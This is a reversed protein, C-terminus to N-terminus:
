TEAMLDVSPEVVAAGRSNDRSRIMEFCTPRGAFQQERLKRSEERMKSLASAVSPPLDCPPLANRNQVFDTRCRVRDGVQLEMNLFLLGGLREYSFVDDPDDPDHDPKLFEREVFQALGPMGVPTVTLDDIVVVLNPCQKTLKPIANRRVVDLAALHSGVAGGEIASYRDQRIRELRRTRDEPFHNQREAIRRPLLESQWGPQNIEVFINPSDALCILVDGKTSGQGPPAGVACEFVM